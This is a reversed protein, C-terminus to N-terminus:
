YTRSLILLQQLGQDTALCIGDGWLVGQIKKRLWMSRVFTQSIGLSISLILIFISTRVHLLFSQTESFQLTLSAIKLGSKKCLPFTVASKCSIIPPFYITPFFRHDFPAVAEAAPEQERADLDGWQLWCNACKLCTLNGPQPEAPETPLPTPSDRPPLRATPWPWGVAATTPKKAECTTILAGLDWVDCQKICHHVISCVALVSICPFNSEPLLRYAKKTYCFQECKCMLFLKHM